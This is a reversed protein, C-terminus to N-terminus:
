PEHGYDLPIVVYNQMKDEPPFYAGRLIFAKDLLRSAIANRVFNESVGSEKALTYIDVLADERRGTEKVNRKLAASLASMQNRFPERNRLDLIEVGYFWGLATLNYQNWGIDNVLRRRTMERWTTPLIANYPEKEADVFLLAFWNEGVDAMILRVANKLDEDRDRKAVTVNL